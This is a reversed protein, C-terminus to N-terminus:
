SMDSYQSPQEKDAIDDCLFFANKRSDSKELALKVAYRVVYFIGKNDNRFFVQKPNYQM